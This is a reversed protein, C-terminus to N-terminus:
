VIVESRQKQEDELLLIVIVNFILLVATGFLLAVTTFFADQTTTTTTTYPFSMNQVTATALAGFAVVVFIAAVFCNLVLLFKYLYEM